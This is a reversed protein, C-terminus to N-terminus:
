VQSCLKQDGETWSCEDHSSNCLYAKDMDELIINNFYSWKCSLFIGEYPIHMNVPNGNIQRRIVRSFWIISSPISHMRFNLIDIKWLQKLEYLTSVWRACHPGIAATVAMQVYVLERTVHLMRCV